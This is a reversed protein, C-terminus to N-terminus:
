TLYEVTFDVIEGPSMREVERRVAQFTRDVIATEGAIMVMGIRTRQWLDQYEIEAISLHFRTVLRDKLSRIIRRKEKLSSAGPLHLDLSFFGICM